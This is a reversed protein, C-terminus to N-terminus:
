VAPALLRPLTAVGGGDEVLRLMVSVSSVTDVRCHDLGEARLLDQLAQQVISRMQFTIFGDMALSLSSAACALWGVVSGPM